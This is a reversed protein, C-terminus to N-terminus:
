RCEEASSHILINKRCAYIRCTYTNIHCSKNNTRQKNKEHTKPRRKDTKQGNKDTNQVNKYTKVQLPSVIPIKGTKEGRHSCAEQFKENFGEPPLDQALNAPDTQTAMTPAKAATDGFSAGLSSYRASNLLFRPSRTLDQPEEEELVSFPEERDASVTTSRSHRQPSATQSTSKRKSSHHHRSAARPTHRHRPSVRHPADPITDLVPPNAITFLGKKPPARVRLM